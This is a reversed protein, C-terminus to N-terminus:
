AAFRNETLLAATPAQTQSFRAVPSTKGLASPDPKPNTSSRMLVEDEGQDLRVLVDRKDLDAVLQRVLAAEPDHGGGDPVPEVPARDSEFFAAWALSCCRGSTRRLRSAQNSAWGSRSGSLSTNM